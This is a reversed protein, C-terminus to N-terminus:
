RSARGRSGQRVVVELRGLYVSWRDGHIISTAEPLRSHRLRLHTGGDRSELEIEVLSTGPPLMALTPDQSDWGWTFAVRRPLVPIRVREGKALSQLTDSGDEPEVGFVEIAPLLAKAATVCGAILGDGCVCVLLPIWRTDVDGNRM